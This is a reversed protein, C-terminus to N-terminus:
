LAKTNFIECPKRISISLAKTDYKSLAKTNFIYLVKTNINVPSEYSLKTNCEYCQRIWPTALQAIAWWKM